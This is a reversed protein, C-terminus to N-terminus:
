FALHLNGSKPIRNSHRYIYRKQHIEDLVARDFAIQPVLDELTVDEIHTLINHMAMHRLFASAAEHHVSPKPM